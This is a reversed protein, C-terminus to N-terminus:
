IKFRKVSLSLEDSQGSVEECSSAIEESVATNQQVVSSIEEVGINIQQIAESQSVSANAIEEIMANTKQFINIVAKLSEATQNVIKTGEKVVSLSGEILESTNSVADSSKEALTKVEGAVVAFGKGAEGVRAAEIAANLSLIHTQFSIEDIMSIIESIQNSKVSIQDMADVMNQMYQEQINLLQVAEASLKKVDNTNDTTKLITSSIDTLSASLEEIAAAQSSAGNALMTAGDTVQSMGTHVSNASDNINKIVNKLEKRIEELSTKIERFDGVYVISNVQNRIKNDKNSDVLNGKAIDGLNEKIDLIINSLNYQMQETAKALIGIEDTNQSKEVKGELKGESLEKLRTAYSTIPNGIGNGIIISVVVAGGLSVLAFLISILASNIIEGLFDNQPATLIISWGNTGEIPAYGIYYDENDLKYTGSGDQGSVARALHQVLSEYKSEGNKFQAIYNIEQPIIDSDIDAIIKGDKNIVYSHSNESVTINRVIDNLFEENPVYYVCGIPPLNYDGEEYLPSSIIITQKGTVKSVIPDSIFPKGNMANQFYERESYDKGDIGTGDSNIINGRELNHYVAVDNLWVKKDEISEEPDSFFSDTGSEISINQYAKLEWQSQKAANIAMQHLHEENNKNTTKISSFSSISITFALSISVLGIMAVIIKSRIHKFRFM